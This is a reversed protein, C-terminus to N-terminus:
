RPDFHHLDRPILSQPKTAIRMGTMHAAIIWPELDQMGDQGSGSVTLKDITQYDLRRGSNATGFEDCDVLCQRRGLKRKLHGSPCRIHQLVRLDDARPETNIKLRVQEEAAGNRRPPPSADAGVGSAM